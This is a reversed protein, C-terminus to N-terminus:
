LLLINKDTEYNSLNVHRYLNTTVTAGHCINLLTVSHDGSKDPRATVESLILQVNLM